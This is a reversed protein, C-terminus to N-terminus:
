KIRRQFGRWVKHEIQMPHAPPAVGADVQPLTCFSLWGIQAPLCVSVFTV